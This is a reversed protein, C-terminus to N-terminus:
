NMVIKRFFPFLNIPKTKFAFFFFVSPLEAAMNKYKFKVYDIRWDTKTIEENKQNILNLNM